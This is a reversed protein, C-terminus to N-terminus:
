GRIQRILLMIHGGEGWGGEGVGEGVGRAAVGMQYATQWPSNEGVLHSLRGLWLFDLILSPWAKKSDNSSAGVGGGGGGLRWFPFGIISQVGVTFAV